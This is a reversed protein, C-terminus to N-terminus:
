HASGSSKFGRRRTCWFSDYSRGFTGTWDAIEHGAVASMLGVMALAMPRYLRVRQGIWIYQGVAIAFLVLAVAPLGYMQLNDRSRSMVQPRGTRQGIELWRPRCWEM